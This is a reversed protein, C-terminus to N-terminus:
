SPPGVLTLYHITKNKSNQVSFVFSTVRYEVYKYTFYGKWQCTVPNRLINKFNNPGLLSGAIVSTRQHRGDM